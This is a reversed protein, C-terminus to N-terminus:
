ELRGAPRFRRLDDPIWRRGDPSVLVSFRARNPPPGEQLVFKFGYWRSFPVVQGSLIALLREKDPSISQQGMAWRHATKPHVSLLEVAQAQTVLASGWPTSLRILSQNKKM